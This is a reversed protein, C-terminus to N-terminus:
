INKDLILSALLFVFLFGTNRNTKKRFCNFTIKRQISDQVGSPPAQHNTGITLYVSPMNYYHRLTQSPELFWSEYHFPPYRNEGDCRLLASDNHRKQAKM